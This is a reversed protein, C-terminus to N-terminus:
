RMAQTFNVDIELWLGKDTTLSQIEALHEAKFEELRDGLQTMLGRFGANWLVDWWGNLDTYYGMSKRTIEVHNCGAGNFLDYLQQPEAIRKWSIPNDPVQVGYARLRKITLESLPMFSDGCFGSIAIRGGPMVKSKIHTLLRSMDEVFFLGFACVAHTFSSDRFPLATMDQQLFEINHLGAAESRAKAQALMGASLDIATIKGDPLRAALPLTTAGTGCAIDLVHDNGRLPLLDAMFQGCSLFFRAGGLGYADAVADFTNRIAEKSKKEKDEDATTM